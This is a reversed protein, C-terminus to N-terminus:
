HWGRKVGKKKEAWKEEGGPNPLEVKGDRGEGRRGRSGEVGTGLEVM